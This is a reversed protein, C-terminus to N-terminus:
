NGVHICATNNEGVCRISESEVVDGLFKVVYYMKFDVAIDQSHGDTTGYLTNKSSDFRYSYNGKAPLFSLVSPREDHYELRIAAGRETPTLEFTCNSRIFTLKLYDPRQVSEQIRYGSWAQSASDAIVDNQPTMVFTGYDNIWPSPQHTLRVGEAFEHDPHYFWGEESDTQICYSAMGFPLQTLPLTNGYSRRKVSKTGMKINVYPLYKM